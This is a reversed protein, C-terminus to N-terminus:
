IHILSLGLVGRARQWYNYRDDLGWSRCDPLCHHIRGIIEYLAKASNQDAVSNLNLKTWIYAAIKFAWEPSSALDPNNVLDINLAKGVEIYANKGEIRIAGRGRYKNGDGTANNGIYTAFDLHSCCDAPEDLRNLTWSDSSIESLFAAQRPCDYYMSGLHLATDIHQAYNRANEWTSTWMISMIQEPTVAFSATLLFACVIAIRMSSEAKRQRIQNNKQIRPHCATVPKYRDRICM